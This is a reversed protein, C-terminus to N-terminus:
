HGSLLGAISRRYILITPVISLPVVSLAAVAGAATIAAGLEPTNGTATAAAVVVVGGTLAGLFAISCAQVVLAAVISRQHWGMARLTAYQARRNLFTTTSVEAAGVLALTAVIVALVLQLDHLHQRASFDLLTSGLEVSAARTSLTTLGVTASGVAISLAAVMTEVRSTVLMERWAISWAPFTGRLPPATGAGRLREWVPGHSASVVPILAGVFSVGILVAPLMALTRWDLPLGLLRGLLATGIVGAASAILGLLAIESAVVRAVWRGPWGLARLTAFEVERRRLGVYTTEGVVVAATAVSLVILLLADINILRTVRVAAGKVSWMETATLAPRGGTGAPLEISIPRASAGKVIDVDLGTGKRISEAISALRGQAEPTPLGGVDTKVRIASIFREGPMDTFLSSASFWQATALNTLVLPPSNVYGGLSRTPRLIRGDQTAISPAAYGDLGNGGALSAFGPLCTPDYQGIPNWYRNAAETTPLHATVSRFWTDKAAPPVLWDSPYGALTFTNREYVGPNPKVTQAQLSGPGNSIFSVDSSTWLPWDDVESGVRPLYQSYLEAVSASRTSTSQWSGLAAPNAGTMVTSGRTALDVEAKLREDVLSRDSMLAPITTGPPDSQQPQPRDAGLFYRGSTVCSQLGFLAAEAVPDIGAVLIPQLLELGYLAETAPECRNGFCQKPAFCSVPFSCSISAKQATLTQSLTRPDVHVEGSGALILYHTEILYTSLGADATQTFRIRYVLVEGPRPLQVRTGFGEVQWNEAGVVAIPAAVSVGPVQRIAALQRLSIGGGALASLYNPRILGQTAELVSRSGAPRVVIDFPTEWTQRVDGAIHAQSSIVVSVLVAFALGTSMLATLAISSTFRRSLLGRM